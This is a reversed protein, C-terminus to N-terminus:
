TRLVRGLASQQVVALLTVVCDSIEAVAACALRGVERVIKVLFM